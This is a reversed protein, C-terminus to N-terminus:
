KSPRSKSWLSQIKKPCWVFEENQDYNLYAFKILKRREKRNVVTFIFYDLVSAKVSQLEKHVLTQKLFFDVLPAQYHRYGLTGMCKLIRTIRLNNHTHRNLDNFRDRWNRARKVHGMEENCLEIGYFDLMLKYSKLLNEKAIPEKLFEEIEAKTLTIARNNVGPVELPFLWQIYTHTFELSRYEGHWSSHFEGIYIGDPRSPRKGLYFNLNAMDEHKPHHQSTVSPYGHRYVQTDKAAKRFREFKLSTSKHGASDGSSAEQSPETEWTSDYECYFEDMTRVEYEEGWEEEDAAPKSSVVEVEQLSNECEKELEVDPGGIDDDDDPPGLLRGRIFPFVIRAIWRWSSVLGRWATLFFAAAM